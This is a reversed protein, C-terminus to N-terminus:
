NYEELNLDQWKNDDSNNSEDESNESPLELSIPFQINDDPLKDAMWENDVVTILIRTGHVRQSYNSDSM